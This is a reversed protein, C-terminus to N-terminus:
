IKELFGTEKFSGDTMITKMIGRLVETQFPMFPFNEGDVSIYSTKGFGLKPILRFAEVKYHGIEHKWVHMGKDLSLLADTTKLINMNADMFVIDISGDNPLAAPFFNTDKSIYPMKGSYFIGLSDCAKQDLWEWGDDMDVDDLDALDQSGRYYKLNFSDDTLEESVPKPSQIAKKYFENLEEKTKTIYKVAISCPYKARGFVKAAVGLEFRSQGIWRIWETGIDAEAIIGYTQSLFSLKVPKDQMCVAMLDAKVVHGKIIELTATSPVLTGLCSLSMANGSGSPTQCIVLKNFAAAKDEREYLGNIIEHPIGDGSACIIIDYKDINLDRALEVAHGSYQTKCLEIDYRAAKLIPEVQGHYFREAKGQGSHPNMVVLVSKQPQSDPYAKSMLLSTLETSSYQRQEEPNAFEIQFIQSAPVLKSNKERAYSIEVENNSGGTSEVWLINKFTILNQRPSENFGSTKTSFPTCCSEIGKSNSDGLQLFQGFPLLGEKDIKARVM